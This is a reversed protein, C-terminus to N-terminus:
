FEIFIQNEDHGYLCTLSNTRIYTNLIILTKRFLITTNKKEREKGKYTLRKKM